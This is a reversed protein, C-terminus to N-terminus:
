PAPRWSRLAWSSGFVGLHNDDFYLVRGDAVAHCADGDCLVALPDYVAIGFERQLDAVLLRYGAQHAEVDARAVSCPFRALGHRLSFPRGTCQDVRFGLESVQLFLGTKKGASQLFAITSRAADRIAVANTATGGQTRFRPLPQGGYAEVGSVAMAGRFSLWVNAISGDAALQDLMARNVRTCTHDGSQNVRELGLLPPCGTQGLHVVTEGSAALLAGLGPFFHAAHSDGLLATTVPLTLDFWQCYEGFGAFRARCVGENLSTPVPGDIQLATRAPPALVGTTFGATAIAAIIAM